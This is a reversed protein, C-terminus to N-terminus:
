PWTLKTLFAEATVGSCVGDDIRGTMIRVFDGNKAYGIMRKRTPRGNQEVVAELQYADIVRGGALNFKVPGTKPKEIVKVRPNDYAEVNAEIIEVTEAGQGPFVALSMNEPCRAHQPGTPDDVYFFIVANQAAQCWELVAEAVRVQGAVMFAKHTFTVVEPAAGAVAAPGETIDFARTQCSASRKEQLQPSDAGAALPCCLSFATLVALASRTM